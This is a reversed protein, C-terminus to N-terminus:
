RAARVWAGNLQALIRVYVAQIPAVTPQPWHRQEARKLGFNSMKRKVVRATSRLRRAPLLEHVIEALTAPPSRPPSTNRSVLNTASTGLCARTLRRAASLTRTLM